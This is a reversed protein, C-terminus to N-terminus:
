GELAERAARLTKLAEALSDRTERMLCLDERRRNSIMHLQLRYFRSRDRAKLVLFQILLAVVVALAAPSYILNILDEAMGSLFLILVVAVALFMWLDSSHVLRQRRPRPPLSEGGPPPLSSLPPPSSAM